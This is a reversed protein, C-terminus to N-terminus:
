ALMSVWDIATIKAVMDKSLVSDFLVALKFSKKYGPDFCVPVQFFVSVMVCPQAKRSRHVLLMWSLTADLDHYRQHHAFLQTELYAHQYVIFYM